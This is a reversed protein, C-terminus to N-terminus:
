EFKSNLVSDILEKGIRENNLKQCSSLSLLFGLIILTFHTKRMHENLYM